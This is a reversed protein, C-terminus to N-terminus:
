HHEGHLVKLFSKFNRIYSIPLPCYAIQLLCVRTESNDFDSINKRLM